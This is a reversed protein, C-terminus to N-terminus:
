PKEIMPLGLVEAESEGIAGIGFVGGSANAVSVGVSKLSNYYQVAYIHDLKPLIKNLSVLHDNLVERREEWDMPLNAFMNQLTKEMDKEALIKYIEQVESKESYTKVKVV